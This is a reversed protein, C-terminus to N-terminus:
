TRMLDPVLKAHSYLDSPRLAENIPNTIADLMNNIGVIINRYAGSFRAPDGRKQLRGEEAEIILFEVEGVIGEISTILQKFAPGIEDVEDRAKLMEKLSESLDGEAIKRMGGIIIFQLIDSFCDMAATIEEIKETRDLKLRTTLHGISMEQMMTIGKALPITISKSILTGM